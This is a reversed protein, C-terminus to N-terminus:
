GNSSFALVFAVSTHGGKAPAFQWNYINAKIKTELQPSNRDLSTVNVESVMGNNNINFSVQFKTKLKPDNMLVEGYIDNFETSHQYIVQCIETYSRGPQGTNNGSITIDSFTITMNSVLPINQGTFSQNDSSNNQLSQSIFFFVGIALLTIAIGVIISGMVKPQGGTRPSPQTAHEEVPEVQQPISSGLQSSLGIPFGCQPCTKRGLGVDKGCNPCNM